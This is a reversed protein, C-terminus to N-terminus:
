FSKQFAIDRDCNWFNVVDDMRGSLRMSAIILYVCIELPKRSIKSIERFKSQFMHGLGIRGIGWKSWQDVPKKITKLVRTGDLQIKDVGTLRM